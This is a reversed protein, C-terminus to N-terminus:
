NEKIPSVIGIIPGMPLGVDHRGIMPAYLRSINGDLYLAISLGLYDQFFKGFEYLTVPSNSIVFFAKSGDNSTGIGNRIYKSSSDKIFKQHLMGNIVLLPGSQTAFNCEPKMSIYDSTEIVNAKKEQICFIGNPLMGFNGYTAKEIVGNIVKKEEIYLGVPDYNPFFMGANMGFELSLNLDEKLYKKVNTFHNFKKESQDSLFLRVDDKELDSVCNAFYTANFLETQCTVGFIQSAWFVFFITLRAM